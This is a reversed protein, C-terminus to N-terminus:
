LVGGTAAEALISFVPSVSKGHINCFSCNYLIKLVKGNLSETVHIKMQNKLIKSFIKIIAERTGPAVVVAGM